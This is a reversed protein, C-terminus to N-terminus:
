RQELVHNSSYLARKAGVTENCSLLVNVIAAHLQPGGYRFM